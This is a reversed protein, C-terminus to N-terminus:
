KAPEGVLSLRPRNEEPQAGAGFYAAVVEEDAPVIVILITGGAQVRDRLYRKGGEDPKLEFVDACGTEVKKITGSGLPHPAKFADKVVEGLSGVKFKLGALPDTGRDAPEALFFRAKGAQTFRANSQVLRLRMKGIEGVQGEGRPPEFVLVGFSAYHEKKVGEVNFYRSGAEGQRPGAPQVTLSRTATAKIEALASPSTLAALAFYWLITQQRGLM